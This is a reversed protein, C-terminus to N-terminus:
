LRQRKGPPPIGPLLLCAASFDIRTKRHQHHHNTKKNDEVKEEQIINLAAERLKEALAPQAFTNILLWFLTPITNTTAVFAIPLKRGSIYFL